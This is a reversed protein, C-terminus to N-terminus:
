FITRLKNEPVSLGDRFIPINQQMNSSSTKDLSQKTGLVTKDRSYKM